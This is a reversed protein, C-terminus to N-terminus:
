EPIALGRNGGPASGGTELRDANVEVLLSGVILLAAGALGVPLSRTSYRAVVSDPISLIKTM